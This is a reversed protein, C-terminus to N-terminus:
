QLDAIKVVIKKAMARRSENNLGVTNQKIAMALDKALPAYLAKILGPLKMESIGDHLIHILDLDKKDIAARFELVRKVFLGDRNRKPNRADRAEQAEQAEQAGPPAEDDQGGLSRFAPAAEEQEEQEEQAEVGNLVEKAHNLVVVAVEDLYPDDRELTNVYEDWGTSHLLAELAESRDAKETKDNIKEVEELENLLEEGDWWKEWADFQEFADDYENSELKRLYSKNNVLFTGREKTNELWERLKAEMSEEGGGEGGNMVVNLTYHSYAAFMIDVVKQQRTRERFWNPKITTLLGTLVTGKKFSAIFRSRIDEIAAHAILGDVGVLSFPNEPPKEDPTGTATTRKVIRSGYGVQDTQLIHLLEYLYTDQKDEIAKLRSKIRNDYSSKYKEIINRMPDLLGSLSLANTDMVDKCESLPQSPSTAASPASSKSDEDQSYEPDEDDNDPLCFAAHLTANDLLFIGYWPSADTPGAEVVGVIYALRGVMIDNYIETDGEKVTYLKESMKKLFLKAADEEEAFELAYEKQMKALLKQILPNAVKEKSKSQNKFSEVRELMIYLDELEDTIFGSDLNARLMTIFIDEEMLHLDSRETKFRHVMVVDMEKEVESYADELVKRTVKLKDAIDEFELLMGLVQKEMQLQPVEALTNKKKRDDINNLIRMGEKVLLGLEEDEEKAGTTVVLKSFLADVVSQGTGLCPSDLRKHVRYM